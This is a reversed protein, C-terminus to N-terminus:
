KQSLISDLFQGFNMDQSSSFMPQGSLIVVISVKIQSNQSIYIGGIVPLARFFKEKAKQPRIIVFNCLKEYRTLWLQMSLSNFNKLFIFNQMNLLLIKIFLRLKSVEHSKIKVVVRLDVFCKGCNPGFKTCNFERLM